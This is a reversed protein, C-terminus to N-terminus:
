LFAHGVNDHCSVPYVTSVSASRIALPLIILLIVCEILIVNAFNVIHLKNSDPLTSTVRSSMVPETPCVCKTQLGVWPLSMSTLQRDGQNLRIVNRNNEWPANGSSAQATWGEPAYLFLFPALLFLPLISALSFLLFFFFFLSVLGTVPRSPRYPQSICLIGLQRSLRSVCPPSM